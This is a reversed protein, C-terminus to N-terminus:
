LSRQMDIPRIKIREKGKNLKQHGIEKNEEVIPHLPDLLSFAQINPSKM